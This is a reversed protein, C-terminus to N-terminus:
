GEAGAMVLEVVNRGSQPVARERELEAAQVDRMLLQMAAPASRDSGAAYLIRRVDESAERHMELPGFRHRRLHEDFVDGHVGEAVLVALLLLVGHEVVCIRDLAEIHGLAGATRRKTGWARVRRDVAAWAMGVVAVVTAVAVAWGFRWSTVVTLWLGLGLLARLVKWWGGPEMGPMRRAGGAILRSGGRATGVMARAALGSGGSESKSTMDSSGKPQNAAARDPPIPGPPSWISVPSPPCTGCRGMQGLDILTSIVSRPPFEM